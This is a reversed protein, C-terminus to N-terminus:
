FPVFVQRPDVSVSTLNATRMLLDRSEDQAAATSPEKVSVEKFIKKKRRKGGGNIKMKRWGPEVNFAKSQVEHQAFVIM